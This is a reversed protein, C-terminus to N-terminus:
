QSAAAADSCGRLEAKPLRGHVRIAKGLRGDVGADISMIEGRDETLLSYGPYSLPLASIVQIIGIKNPELPEWTQEDRIIVDAFNPPYLNGDSAELFVSGIQEVMGYFNFIRKLCFKEYLGPPFEPNAVKERAM